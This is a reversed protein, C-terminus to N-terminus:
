GNARYNTTTDTMYNAAVGVEQITTGFANQGTQMGENTAWVELIDGTNLQGRVAV